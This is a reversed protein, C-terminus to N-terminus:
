ESEENHLEEILIKKADDERVAILAGRVMYAVLEGGPNVMINEVTTGPTFGIDLLRRKITGTNLVKRVVGKKGIELDYLSKENM